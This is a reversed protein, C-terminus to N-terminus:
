NPSEKHKGNVPHFCALTTIKELVTGKPDIIVMAPPGPLELNDTIEKFMLTTKGAGSPALCLTHEFKTYQDIQVPLEIPPKPAPAPWHKADYDMKGQSWEANFARQAAYTAEKLDDAEIEERKALIQKEEKQYRRSVEYYKEQGNDDYQYVEEYFKRDNAWNEKLDRLADKEKALEARRDPLYTRIYRNLITRCCIDSCVFANLNFEIIARRRAAPSVTSGCQACTGEEFYM